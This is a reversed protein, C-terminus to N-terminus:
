NMFILLVIAAICIGRVVSAETLDSKVTALGVISLVFSTIAFLWGVDPVQSLAALIFALTAATYNNRQTEDSTVHDNNTKFGEPYVSM